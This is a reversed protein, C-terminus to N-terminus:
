QQAFQYFKEQNSLENIRQVATGRNTEEMDSYEPMIDDPDDEHEFNTQIKNMDSFEEVVDDTDKEHDFKQQLWEETEVIDDTDKEHDKM